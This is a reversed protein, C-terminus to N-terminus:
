SYQASGQLLTVWPIVISFPWWSVVSLMAVNLMVVSLVAIFAHCLMFSMLCLPVEKQHLSLEAMISLTKLSLTTAGLFIVKVKIM